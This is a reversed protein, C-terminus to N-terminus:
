LRLLVLALVALGLGVQNARSLRENWGYVGVVASLVMIAINNAPFVFPGPLEAIARLIFELSGYNAVGLLVGWGVARWTPWQGFRLARVAVLVAGILFAMGFALLLFLVRSNTAGFGEEFTKMSLDVAGGSCFTLLLVGFAYWDVGDFPTAGEEGATPSRHKRAILFFAVAALIMGAGQAASPVEDWVLWSALFPIVVSVRTVGVALSMGAVDTAYALLYFGAILLAGVGGGLALLGVSLGLGGGTERGGGVIILLAVGVAAAYNVTLLATRDIAQPGTHKFIMGIAVSCVVALALDIM